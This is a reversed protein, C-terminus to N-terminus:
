IQEIDQTEFRATPNPENKSAYTRGTLTSENLNHVRDNQRSKRGKRNTNVKPKVNSYSSAGLSKRMDRLDSGFHGSASFKSSEAGQDLSTKSVGFVNQDVTHDFEDIMQSNDVM